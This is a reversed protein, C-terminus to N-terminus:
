IYYRNYMSVVINYNSILYRGGIYMLNNSNIIMIKFINELFGGAAPMLSRLMIARANSRVLIISLKGYLNSLIMSKSKSTMIAVRSAIHQM